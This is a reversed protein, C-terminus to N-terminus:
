NKKFNDYDCNNFKYLDNISKSSDDEREYNLFYGYSFNFMSKLNDDLNEKILNLQKMSNKENEKIEIKNKEKEEKEIEKKIKERVIKKTKNIPLKKFIKEVKKGNKIIKEKINLNKQSLILHNTNNVLSYNKFHEMVEKRKNKPMNFKTIEKINLKKPKIKEKENKNNYETNCINTKNKQRLFIKSSNILSKNTSKLETNFSNFSSLKERKLINKNIRFLSKSNSGSGVGSKNNFKRYNLFYSNDKTIFLKIDLNILDKDSINSLIIKNELHLEEIVFKIYKKKFEIFINKPLCKKIYEFLKNVVKEYILSAILPSVKYNKFFYKKSCNRKINNYSFNKNFSDILNNRNRCNTKNKSTQSNSYSFRKIKTPTSNNATLNIIKRKNNYYKLNQINM